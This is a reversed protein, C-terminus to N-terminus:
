KRLTNSDGRHIATMRARAKKLKRMDLRDLVAAARNAKSRPGQVKSRQMFDKM